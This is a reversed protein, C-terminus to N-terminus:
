MPDGDIMARGGVIAAFHFVDAFKEFDVGYTDQVHNPNANLERLFNRFDDKLFFLRKDEGYVEVNGIQDTKPLSLWDSPHRGILLNDVFFIRDPTAEYLRRVMNRGVFGCGGSVLHMKMFHYKESAFI